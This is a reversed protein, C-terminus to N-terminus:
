EHGRIGLAQLRRYLASRSLGLAEAAAQASRTRELARRILHGEADALTMREISSADTRAPRLSLDAVTVEDGDALVVAREVVHELERVNGPWPHAVLAAMADPAFGSVAKRYKAAKAGLFHAALAAADGARDRLPPLHVEVTNLRYLLDERFRGGDLDRSVDLNTASLVRVDVRRPRSSGVPQFEGSQLVRLLKAQQTAPMTGIEDLFLTGGDALEFCGTRDAVADTFAGKVHGFLESEFVGDALAGANLPVFPRSARRSAAHIWRAVVDKGTGHEGTILVNADSTAIREVLRKVTEMATSVAVLEPLARAQERSSQARLREAERAAGRLDVQLRLTTLLRENQWPKEVYDRAGRKMAEVAGAVSGWATMVVVPLVPDAGRLRAILDLGEQGSTTDRAYNMDLLAVDLDEAAVAALVGAPSSAPVVTFGAGKLLLRIAEVVDPQDDAVLIRPPRLRQVM